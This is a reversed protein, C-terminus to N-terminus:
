FISNRSSNQKKLSGVQGGLPLVLPIFYIQPWFVRQPVVKVPEKLALFSNFNQFSISGTLPNRELAWCNHLLHKTFASCISLLYLAFASYTSFMNKLYTDTIWIWWYDNTSKCVETQSQNCIDAYQMTVIISSKM